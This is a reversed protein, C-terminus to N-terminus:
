GIAQEGFQILRVDSSSLLGGIPGVQARYAGPTMGAIDKFDHCLHAQDYYHSEQAIATLSLDSPMLSLARNFRRLRVYELPTIGVYELFVRRLHRPSVTMDRAIRDVRADQPTRALVSCAHHVQALRASPAIVSELWHLLIRCQDPFSATARQLRDFLEPTNKFVLEAEIALNTVEHAPLPLVARCAEASLGLGLMVLHADPATTVSHSHLGALYMAGRLRSVNSRIGDVTILSGSLPFLLKVVGRPMIREHGGATGGQHRWIGKVYPRLRHDRPLFYREAQM